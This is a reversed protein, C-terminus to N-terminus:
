GPAPAARDRPQPRVRFRSVIRLAVLNFGSIAVGMVALTADYRLMVAVYVVLTLLGVATTALEGSILGAVRATQSARRSSIAPSAGSFSCWRCNFPM